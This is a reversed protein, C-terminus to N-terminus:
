AVKCFDSNYHQQQNTLDPFVFNVRPKIVSLSKLRTTGLIGLAPITCIHDVSAPHEPGVVVNNSIKKRSQRYRGEGLLQEWLRNRRRFLKEAIRVPEKM